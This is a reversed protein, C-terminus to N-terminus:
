IMLILIGNQWIYHTNYHVNHGNYHVIIDYYGYNILMVRQYNLMAISFPSKYHTKGSFM